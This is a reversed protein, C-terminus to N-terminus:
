KKGGTKTPPPPVDPPPQSFYKRDFELEFNIDKESAGIFKMM